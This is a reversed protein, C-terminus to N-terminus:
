TWNTTVYNKEYKVYKRMSEQENGSNWNNKFTYQDEQACEICM